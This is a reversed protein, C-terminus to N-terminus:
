EVLKRWYEGSNLKQFVVEAAPTLFPQAAQRSTGFEVFEAYNVCPGVRAMVNGSPKPHMETEAKPNAQRAAGSANAYGDYDKTVTYISNAMASTLRPARKKAEAELEFGLLKGVKNKNGDMQRVIRDLERTDLKFTVESM